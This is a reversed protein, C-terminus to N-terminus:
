LEATEDVNSERGRLGVAAVCVSSVLSSRSCSNARARSREAESRQNIDAIERHLNSPHSALPEGEEKSREQAEERGGKRKEGSEGSGRREDTM